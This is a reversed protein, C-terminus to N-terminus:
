LAGVISRYILPDIIPTGSSKILQPTAVMLTSVLKTGEMRTKLLLDYLYWNQSILLGKITRHM